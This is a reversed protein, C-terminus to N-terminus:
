NAYMKNECLKGSADKHICVFFTKPPTQRRDIRQVSPASPHLPCRFSQPVASSSSSSSSSSASDRLDKMFSENRNLIPKAQQDSTTIPRIPRPPASAEELALLRAAEGTPKFAALGRPTAMQADSDADKSWSDIDMSYSNPSPSTRPPSVVNMLDEEEGEKVYEGWM